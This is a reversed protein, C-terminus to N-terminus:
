IAVPDLKIIFITEFNYNLMPIYEKIESSQWLTINKLASKM